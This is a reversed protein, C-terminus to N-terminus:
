RRDIVIAVVLLLFCLNCGILLTASIVMNPISGFGFLAAALPLAFPLLMVLGYGCLAVIGIATAKRSRNRYWGLIFLGVLVTLSNLIVWLWPM